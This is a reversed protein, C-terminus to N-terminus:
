LIWLCRIAWHRYTQYVPSLLLPLKDKLLPLNAGQEQENWAKCGLFTWIKLDGFIVYDILLSILSNIIIIIIDCFEGHKHLLGLVRYTNSIFKLKFFFLKPEIWFEACQTSKGCSYMLLDFLINMFKHIIWSLTGHSTWSYFM